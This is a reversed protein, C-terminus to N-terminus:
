GGRGSPLQIDKYSSGLGYLVAQQQGETLAEVAHLAIDEEGCGSLLTGVRTKNGLVTMMAGLPRYSPGEINTIIALVGPQDSAALQRIPEIVSRADLTPVAM